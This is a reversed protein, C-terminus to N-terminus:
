LYTNTDRDRDPFQPRKNKSVKQLERDAEVMEKHFDSKQKLFDAVPTNKGDCVVWGEYNNKYIDWASKEPEEYENVLDFGLKMWKYIFCLFTGIIYGFCMIGFYYFIKEM